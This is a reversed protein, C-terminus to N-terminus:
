RVLVVTGRFNEQSRGPITLTLSYVYVGTPAPQGNITGKWGYNPDDAPANEVLSVKTGWRNYITFSHIITGSM